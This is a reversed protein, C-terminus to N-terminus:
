ASILKQVNWAAMTRGSPQRGVKRTLRNDNRRCIASPDVGYKMSKKGTIEKVVKLSKYVNKERQEKVLVSTIGCCTTSLVKNLFM